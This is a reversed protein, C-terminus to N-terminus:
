EKTENWKGVSQEMRGIRENRTKYQIANDQRTKKRRKGEKKRRKKKKEKRNKDEKEEGEGDFNAM